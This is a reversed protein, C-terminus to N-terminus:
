NTKGSWGPIGRSRTFLWNYEGGNIPLGTITPNYSARSAFQPPDAHSLGPCNKNEKPYPVPVSQSDWTFPIKTCPWAKPEEPENPLKPWRNRVKGIDIFPNHDGIVPSSTFPPVEDTGEVNRTPLEPRLVLDSNFIEVNEIYLYKYREVQKYVKGKESLIDLGTTIVESPMPIWQNTPVPYGIFYSPFEPTTLEAINVMRNANLNVDVYSELGVVSIKLRLALEFNKEYALTDIIYRIEGKVGKEIVVNQPYIYFMYFNPQKANMKAFLSNVLYQCQERLHQDIIAEDYHKRDNVDMQYPTNSNYDEILKLLENFTAQTKNEKIFVTRENLPLNDLNRNNSSLFKEGVYKKALVLVLFILLIAGFYPTYRYLIPM